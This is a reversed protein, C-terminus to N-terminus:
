PNDAAQAAILAEIRQRYQDADFSPASCRSATCFYGAPRDFAPFAVDANPLPGERRDWWEIRRRIGPSALATRHLAVAAPDDKAGVVVLHLPPASLAHDALLVSSEEFRQARVQPSALFRLAREAARRHRAEGTYHHLQDFLLAADLNEAITAVPAVPTGDAVSTLFGPGDRAAFLPTLRDATTTAERLWDRQGTVAHLALLARAMELSDSLYPGGIDHDGHAFSGDDRRRHGLTWRVAQEAAALADAEGSAAAWVALAEAAQGNADAYRNRDIRPMGVKRRAADDLAFYDGAKEGQVVDADQSVYFAGEPGRLFDMLYRQIDRAAAAYEPVQWQAYALAYLRLYRAQSRMIKEFHLRDWRGGTSYQYVGGWAPDILGTAADLTQRARRAAAPDGALARTMDYEVHARDLFKQPLRLGGRQADHDGIHTALLRDFEAENLADGVRASARVSRREPTPDEAIATLLRVFDDPAIYGARKVLETGDAALFILAPWGYDRFRNALAPQADHDARVVVFHEALLSVVAESGFTEDQMVHCWHCWVAELYLFVPKGEAQAQEFAANSWPQWVIPSAAHAAHTLLTLALALWGCIFRRHLARMVTM